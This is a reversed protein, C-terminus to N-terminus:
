GAKLQLLLILDVAIWRPRSHRWGPGAAKVELPIQLAQLDHIRTVSITGSAEFHRFKQHLQM